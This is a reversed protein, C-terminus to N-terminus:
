LDIYSYENLQTTITSLAISTQTSVQNVLISTLILLHILM